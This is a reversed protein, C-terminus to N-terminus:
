GNPVQEPPAPMADLKRAPELLEVGDLVAALVDGVFRDVTPLRPKM